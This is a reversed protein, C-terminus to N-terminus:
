RAARAPLAPASSPVSRTARSACRATSAAAITLTPRAQARRSGRPSTRSGRRATPAPLGAGASFCGARWSGYAAARARASPSIWRFPGCRIPSLLARSSPAPWGQWPRSSGRPAGDLAALVPASVLNTEESGLQGSQKSGWCVVGGDDLLACGHRGGAVVAKAGAVGEVLTVVLVEDACDVIPGGGSQGNLNCGWCAVQGTGLAACSHCAGAARGGAAVDTAGRGGEKSAAGVAGDGWCWVDGQADLACAQAEGAAVRTM